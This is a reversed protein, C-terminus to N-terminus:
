YGRRLGHLEVVLRSMEAMIFAFAVIHVIIVVSWGLWAAGITFIVGTCLMHYSITIGRSEIRYEREDPVMTGERRNLLSVAVVAVLMIILGGILVAVLRGISMSAASAGFALSLWVTSFYWLYMPIGTILTTWLIKERFSM